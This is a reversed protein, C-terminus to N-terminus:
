LKGYLPNEIPSASVSVRINRSILEDSLTRTLSILPPKGASYVNAGPMGGARRINGNLLRRLYGPNGISKRITLM